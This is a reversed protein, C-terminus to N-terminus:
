SVHAHTFTLRLFAICDVGLKEEWNIYDIAVPSFYVNATRSAALDTTAKLVSWMRRLMERGARSPQTTQLLYDLIQKSSSHQSYPRQALMYKQM